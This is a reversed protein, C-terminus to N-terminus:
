LRGQCTMMIRLQMLDANKVDEVGYYGAEQRHVERKKLIEAYRLLPLLDFHFPSLLVLSNSPNLSKPHQLCTSILLVFARTAAILDWRFSGV